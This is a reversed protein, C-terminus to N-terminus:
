YFNNGAEEQFDFLHFILCVVCLLVSLLIPFVGDDLGLFLVPFRTTAWTLLKGIWQTQLLIRSCNMASNCRQRLQTAARLVNPATNMHHNMTRMM